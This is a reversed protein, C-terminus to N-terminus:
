CFHTPTPDPLPCNLCTDPNCTALCSYYCETECMSMCGSNCYSIFCTYDTEEGGRVSHMANKNLNSVTEKNLTLKKILNKKM